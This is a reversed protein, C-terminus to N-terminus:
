TPSRRACDTASTTSCSRPRSRHHPGPSPQGRRRAAPRARPNQRAPRARLTAGILGAITFPIPRRTTATAHGRAVFEGTSAPRSRSARSCTRAEDQGRRDARGVPQPRRSAADVITATRCGCRSTRAPSRSAARSTASTRRTTPRRHHAQRADRRAGAVLRAPGLAPPRRTLTIRPRRRHGHGHARAGHPELTVADGGGATLPVPRRPQPAAGVECARRRRGLRRGPARVDPASAVSGEAPIPPIRRSARRSSRCHRRRRPLDDGAARGHEAGPNEIACRGGRGSRRSRRPDVHRSRHAARPGRVLRDTASTTPRRSRRRSPSARRRRRSSRPRATSAARSRSPSPSRWRRAPQRDRPRGDRPTRSCRRRRVGRPRVRRPGGAAGGGRRLPRARRAAARDRLRHRRAVDLRAQDPRDRHPRGVRPVRGGPRPREPRDHRRPRAADRADRRAPPPRHGAPDEALEDM